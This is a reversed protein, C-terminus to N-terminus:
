LYPNFRKDNYINIQKGDEYFELCISNISYSIGELRVHTYSQGMSIHEVPYEEGKVLGKYKTGFPDKNNIVKATVM